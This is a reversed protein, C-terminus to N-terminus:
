VDATRCSDARHRVVIPQGAEVARKQVELPVDCVHVDRRARDEVARHRVVTIEDVRDDAPKMEHRPVPLAQSKHRQLLSARHPDVIRMEPGCVVDTVRCQRPRAALALQLPEGPPDERLREIARPRQPLQPEHFPERLTAERQERLRMVREDVADGPDVDRRHQEVGRRIRHRDGRGIVLV